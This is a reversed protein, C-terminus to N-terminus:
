IILIQAFKKAILWDTSTEGVCKWVKNPRRVKAIQVGCRVKPLYYTNDTINRRAM